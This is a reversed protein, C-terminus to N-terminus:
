EEESNIKEAKKKEIASEIKGMITMIVIIVGIVLFVGLMGLGMYPLANFFNNVDVAILLANLFM